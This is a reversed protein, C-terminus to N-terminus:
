VFLARYMPGGVCASRRTGLRSSRPFAAPPSTNLIHPQSNPTNESRTGKNAGQQGRTPGKNAGQQGRTPGKNAGQQGRTPGKNACLSVLRFGVKQLDWIQIYQRIGMQPHTLCICPRDFHWCWRSCLVCTIVVHSYDLFSRAICSPKIPCCPQCHTPTVIIWRLPLNLGYHCGSCTALIAAQNQTNSHSWGTHASCAHQFRCPTSAGAIPALITADLALRAFSGHKM